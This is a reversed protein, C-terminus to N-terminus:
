AAKLRAFSCCAAAFVLVAGVAATADGSAGNALLAALLTAGLTQGLLRTTSILGGASTARHRPTSAIILHANPVFYCGFGLGCLSLRWIIDFPALPEPLHTLLLLGVTTILMGIGGLLGAPVRDSLWGSIPAVVAVALPWASLAAGIDRPAFGHTNQLRFPLSLILSMSAAFALLAGIVSLAVVPRALLDVPLIPASSRLERRVFWTTLAIGALFMAAAVARQQGQLGYELGGVLLGFGLACVVAGRADFTQTHRESEPLTYSGLLLSLAAIPVSVLFVWRWDAVSLIFGGISPALAGSVAVVVGGLGIGMGLQHQPYIARMVASHVSMAAAGGLAQAARAVLLVPLDPAWFCLLSAVLVLVQGALYLRKVGIRAGLSSFPLLTMVLVLQYVTVVLVSSSPTVALDRALTPLIVTAINAGMSALMTGLSISLIAWYRRPTPLGNM